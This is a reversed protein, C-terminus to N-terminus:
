GSWGRSIVRARTERERERQRSMYIKSKERDGRPVLHGRDPRELLKDLVGAAARTAHSINTQLEPRRQGREMKSQAM